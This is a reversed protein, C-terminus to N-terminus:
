LKLHFIHPMCFRVWQQLQSGSRRLFFLAALHPGRKFAGTIASHTSFFYQRYFYQYQHQWYKEAVTDTNTNAITKAWLILVPIAL